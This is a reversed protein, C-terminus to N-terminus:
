SAVGLIFRVTDADLRYNIANLVAGALPVGYHAELLAPVNPAMVSVTDGREVGRRRLASALRRCREQMRAYTIRQEGHIIAVKEPYM